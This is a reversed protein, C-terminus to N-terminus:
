VCGRAIRGGDGTAGRAFVRTGCDFGKGAQEAAEALKLQRALNDPDLQAVREWCFLADEARGVATFL